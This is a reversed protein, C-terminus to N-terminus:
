IESHAGDKLPAGKTARVKIRWIVLLVDLLLYRKLLVIEMPMEFTAPEEGFLMINM